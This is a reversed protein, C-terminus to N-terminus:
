KAVAIPTYSSHWRECHIASIHSSSCSLKSDSALSLSFIARCTCFTPSDNALSCFWPNFARVTLCGASPAISPTSISLLCARESCSCGRKLVSVIPSIPCLSPELSIERAEEESTPLRCGGIWILFNSTQVYM